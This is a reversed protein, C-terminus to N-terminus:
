TPQSSLRLNRRELLELLPSASKRLTTLTLDPSFEREDERRERHQLWVTGMGARGAGGVDFRLSDGVHVIRDPAVALEDAAYRYIEPRSKYFGASASTVVSTFAPAIGFMDLSWQLFPHYVASSVVGLRVGDDQLARITEVAGPVPRTTALAGRMLEGVGKEIDADPVSLNLTQFVSHLCAEASLENGHDMIEHRLRRYCEDAQERTRPEIARDRAESWWSLFSSPLRRVELEFWEPCEALTNHFDFTMARL